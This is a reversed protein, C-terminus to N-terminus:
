ILSTLDSDLKSGKGRGGMVRFSDRYKGGITSYSIYFMLVVEVLMYSATKLSLLEPQCMNFLNMDDVHRFSGHACTQLLLEVWFVVECVRLYFVVM